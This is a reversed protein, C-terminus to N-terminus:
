KYIKYNKGQRAKAKIIIITILLVVGIAIVSFIIINSVMAGAKPLNGQAINNTENKNSSGAQSDNPKSEGNEQNIDGNLNNEDQSSDNVDQSNNGNQNGNGGQNNNGGSTSGGQNNSGQNDNGGQTNDGGQNGDSVRPAIHLQVMTSIDNTIVGSEHGISAITTLDKHARIVVNMTDKNETEIIISGIEIIRQSGNDNGLENKSVVYINIKNNSYTLEKLEVNNSIDSNWDIKVNKIDQVNVTEVLLSINFSAISQNQSTELSVQIKNDANVDRELIVNAEIDAEAYTPIAFVTVLFISFIIGIITTLIKNKM